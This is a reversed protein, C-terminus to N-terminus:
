GNMAPIAIAAVIGILMLGLLGLGIVLVVWTVVGLERRQLDPRDTFAWRDVVLTDCMMDHLAQKRQGLGVTLGSVLAGLGFSFVVTLFYAAYRGLARAFSIREGSGRTVKIGVALKGLSAQSSSSHMWAFYFLPIVFGIGYSVLLIGISGGTSFLDSTAGVGALLFLPIQVAWSAAATVLGDIVMAAFRKWFGAQVVEGGAIVAPDASVTARPPAYPSDPDAAAPGPGGIAGPTGPESREAHSQAVARAGPEGMPPTPAPGLGRDDAQALEGAFERMPRWEDMGERWVLSEWDLRGQLRLRVLEAAEVPGQRAHERDAYYWMSM